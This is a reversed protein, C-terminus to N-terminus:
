AVNDFERSKDGTSNQQEGLLKLLRSARAAHLLKDVPIGTFLAVKVAMDMPLPRTGGIWRSIQAQSVGIAAAFDGQRTGTKDLWARLAPIPRPEHEKTNGM